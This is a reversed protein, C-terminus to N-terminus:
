YVCHGPAALDLDCHFLRPRYFTQDPAHTNLSHILTVANEREYPRRYSAVRVLTGEAM